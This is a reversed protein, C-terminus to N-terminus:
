ADLTKRNIVSERMGGSRCRVGINARSSSSVSAVCWYLENMFAENGFETILYRYIFHLCFATHLTEMIRAL